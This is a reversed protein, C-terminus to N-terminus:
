DRNSPPSLRSYKCNTNLLLLVGVAAGVGIAIKQTAM